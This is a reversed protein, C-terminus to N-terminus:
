STKKIDSSRSHSIAAKLKEVEHSDRRSEIYQLLEVLSVKGDHDSDLMQILEEADQPSTTRKLTSVIAARLEESSLEGDGDKDLLNFKDGLAKETIDIKIKLKDLMSNLAAKMMTVSKDRQAPHKESESTVATKAVVPEVTVAAAPFVEYDSPGVAVAPEVEEVAAPTPPTITSPALPETYVAEIHAQLIALEAKERLVSSGLALDGIAQMEQVSLGEGEESAVENVAKKMHSADDVATSTAAAISDLTSPLNLQQSSEDVKKPKHMKSKSKSKLAADVTEEREEEIMDRQFELSELKRKRFDITNEEVPSAVAIVVENIIDPDLSSMSSTISQM